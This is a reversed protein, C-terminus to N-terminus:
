ADSGRLTGVDDVAEVIQDSVLVCGEGRGSQDRRRVNDDSECM